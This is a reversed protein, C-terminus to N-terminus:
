LSAMRIRKAMTFRARRGQLAFRKEPDDRQSSLIATFPCRLDVHRSCIDAVAEAPRRIDATRKIREYPIHVGRYPSDAGCGSLPM